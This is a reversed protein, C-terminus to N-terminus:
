MIALMRLGWMFCRMIKIMFFQMMTIKLVLQILRVFPLHTLNEREKFHSIQVEKFSQAQLEAQLSFTERKNYLNLAIIEDIKPDDLTGLIELVEGNQPNLKLITQSPLAKLSKQSAKIKYAVENPISIAICDLKYKELYCVVNQVRHQLVQLIKAKIKGQKAKTIVKALVIDGKQARQTHNKEVLWDKQSSDFLSCM